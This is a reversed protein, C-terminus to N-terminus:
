SDGSAAGGSAGAGKGNENARNACTRVVHLYKKQTREDSRFDCIQMFELTCAKLLVENFEEELLDNNPNQAMRAELQKLQAIEKPAVAALIRRNYKQFQRELENPRIEEPSTTEEAQKSGTPLASIQINHGIVEFIKIRDIPL